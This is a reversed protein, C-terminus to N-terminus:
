QFLSQLVNKEERKHTNIHKQYSFLSILFISLYCGLLYLLCSSANIKEWRVVLFPFIFMNGGELLVLLILLFTCFFLGLRM